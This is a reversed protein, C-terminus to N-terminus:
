DGGVLADAAWQRMLKRQGKIRKLHGDTEGRYYKKIAAKITSGNAIEKHVLEDRALKDKAVAGSPRGRRINKANKMLPIMASKIEALVRDANDHEEYLYRWGNAEALAAILLAARHKGEPLGTKAQRYMELMLIADRIENM